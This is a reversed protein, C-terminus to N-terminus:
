GSKGKRSFLFGKVRGQKGKLAIERNMWPRINLGSNTLTSITVFHCSEGNEQKFRGRLPLVVHKHKMNKETEACYYMRGGSKNEFDGGREFSSFFFSPCVGVYGCSGGKRM